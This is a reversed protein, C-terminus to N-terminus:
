NGAPGESQDTLHWDEKTGTWPALRHCCRRNSCWHGYLPYCVDVGPSLQGLPHHELGRGTAELFILSLTVWAVIQVVALGVALIFTWRRSRLVGLAALTGATLAVMPGWFSIEDAM